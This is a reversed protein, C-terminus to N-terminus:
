FFSALYVQPFPLYVFARTIFHFREMAGLVGQFSELADGYISGELVQIKLPYDRGAGWARIFWTFHSIAAWISKSFPFGWSKYYNECVFNGFFIPSNSEVEEVLFPHLYTGFLDSNEKGKGQGEKAQASKGAWCRWGAVSPRHKALGQPPLSPPITPSVFSPLSEWIGFFDFYM